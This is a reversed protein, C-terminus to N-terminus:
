KRDGKVIFASGFPRPQLGRVYFRVPAALGPGKSYTAFPTPLTFMSAFVMPQPRFAQGQASEPPNRQFSGVSALRYRICLLAVPKKVSFDQNVFGM